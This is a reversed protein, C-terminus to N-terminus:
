DVWYCDVAEYEKLDVLYSFVEETWHCTNRVVIAHHMTNVSGECGKIENVNSNIKLLMM